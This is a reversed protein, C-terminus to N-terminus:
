LTGFRTREVEFWKRRDEVVVAVREVDLHSCWPMPRPTEDDGRARRPKLEFSDLAMGHVDGVKGGNRAAQDKPDFEFRAETFRIGLDGPYELSSPPMEWRGRRPMM